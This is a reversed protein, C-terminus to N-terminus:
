EVTETELFKYLKDLVPKPVKIPLNGGLSIAGGGAEAAGNAVAKLHEVDIAGDADMIGLAQLMGGSKAGIRLIGSKEIAGFICKTPIDNTDPIVVEWVFKSVRENFKDTAMKM